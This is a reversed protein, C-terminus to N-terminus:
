GLAMKAAIMIGILVPQHILYVVLSNRGLFSLWRPIRADLKKDVFLAQGACIGLLIIGFWPLLPYYDLASYEPYPLGLPFLLHSETRMSNLALGLLIALLALAVNLKGFRFFFPAIMTAAALFHMIGFTIFGEHPYVWTAITIALAVLGLFGARKAHHTYGNDRSESLTMSIGAVLIFLSGTARQFLLIPLWQLDIDALGLYDIDFVVHYAVMMLIAMGRMGDVLAVRM